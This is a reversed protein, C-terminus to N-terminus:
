SAPTDTEIADSNNALDLQLNTERLSAIFVLYAHNERM